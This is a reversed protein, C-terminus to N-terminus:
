VRIWVKIAACFPNEVLPLKAGLPKNSLAQLCKQQWLQPPSLSSTNRAGQPHLSPISDFMMCHLPCGKRIVFSEWAWFHWYLEPQSVRSWLLRGSLLASWLQWSLFEAPEVSLIFAWSRPSWQFLKQFFINKIWLLFSPKESLHIAVCYNRKKKKFFYTRLM